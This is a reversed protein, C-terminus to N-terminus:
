LCLKALIKAAGDNNVSECIYTASDKLTQNANAVAISTGVVTTMCIDDYGNGIAIAEQSDIGLHDLLEVIGTSKATNTFVFDHYYEKGKVRKDEILNKSSHIVKLDPFKDKFVSPLVLMRDFNSSLIVLQNIEHNKLILEIDNFYIAPENNYKYNQNNIYREELSNLIITMNHSECYEYVKIITSPPIPKTFIKKREHYNYIEAGNSSIIYESLHAELSKAIAYQASRGTNLVVKIGKDKLDQMIKKTFESVQEGSPNLTDDIDIFVIKYKMTDCETYM